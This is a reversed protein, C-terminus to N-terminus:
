ARAGGQEAADGERAVGSLEDFLGQAGGSPRRQADHLYATLPAQMAAGARSIMQEVQRRLPIVAGASVVRGVVAREPADAARMSRHLVEIASWIARVLLMPAPAAPTALYLSELVDAFGARGEIRQAPPALGDVLFTRSRFFTRESYLKSPLQAEMTGQRAEFGAENYYPEPVLVLGVISTVIQLLTSDRNWSETKEGSWTGLLSLCVMGDEYLNPNIPATGDTWSHFFVKPAEQPWTESLYMDIFFPAYEYPTDIPGLILIRWYRMAGDWTRVYVGDPLGQELYQIQKRVNSFFKSSAQGRESAGHERLYRHDDPPMGEVVCMKAPGESGFMQSYSFTSGPMSTHQYERAPKARPEVEGPAPAADSDAASSTPPKATPTDATPSPHDAMPIDGDHDGAGADEEEGETTWEEEDEEIPQQNSDLWRVPPGSGATRMLEDYLEPPFVDADGMPPMTTDDMGLDLDDPPYDMATEAIQYTCEAPVEVEQYRDHRNFRVLLTGNLNLALVEGLWHPRDASRDLLIEDVSAYMQQRVPEPPPVLTHFNSILVMDGPLRSLPSAAMIDYLSVLEAAGITRGTWSGPFMRTPEDRAWSARGELWKVTATRQRADVSQVVGIKQPMRSTASRERDEKTAVIEGPWVEDEDDFDLTPVLETSGHVSESLDQWQVKVRSTTGACFCYNLDYGLTESRPIHQLGLAGYKERAAPLDRFRVVDGFKVPLSATEHPDQSCPRQYRPYRKLEPGDIEDMTLEEPPMPLDGERADYHSHWQVALGHTSTKVIYGHPPVNPDYAGYIWRGRRLNSKKTVVFHGLMPSAQPDHPKELHDQDEPVVVSGNDLRLTHQEFMDEVFGVWGRYLVVDDKAFHEPWEVESAPVGHIQDSPQMAYTGFDNVENSPRQNVGAAPFKRAPLLSMSIDVGIVTGSMPESPNLKVRDGAEFHHEVLEIKSISVLEPLVRTQWPLHHGLSSGHSYEEQSAPRHRPGRSWSALSSESVFCVSRTGLPSAKAYSLM